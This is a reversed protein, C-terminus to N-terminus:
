INIKLCLLVSQNSKFLKFTQRNNSNWKFDDCRVICSWFWVHLCSMLSGAMSCHLRITLADKFCNPPRRTSGWYEYFLCFILLFVSPSQLYSDWVLRFCLTWVTNTEWSGVYRSFNVKILEYCKQWTKFEKTVETQWFPYKRCMLHLVMFMVNLLFKQIALLLNRAM